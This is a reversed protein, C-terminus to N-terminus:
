RANRWQTIARNWRGAIQRNAQLRTDGWFGERYPPGWVRQSDWDCNIYALGRVVDRNAAMYAFLPAYWSDWIQRSTVARVAGHSPGDWLPSINALGRRLLSALADRFYVVSVPTPLPRPDTSRARM